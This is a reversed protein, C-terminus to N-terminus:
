FCDSSASTHCSSYGDEESENDDDFDHNLFDVDVSSTISSCDDDDDNVDRIDDYKLKCLNLLKEYVRFNIRTIRSLERAHKAQQVILCRRINLLQKQLSKIEADEISSPQRSFHQLKRCVFCFVSEMQRYCFDFLFGM